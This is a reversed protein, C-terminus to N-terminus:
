RAMELGVTSMSIHVRDSSFSGLFEPSQFVVAEVALDDSLMTSVADADCPQALSRAAIAGAPRLAEACAATRNYATVSHGSKLLNRAIPEGMKGIGIVGVRM